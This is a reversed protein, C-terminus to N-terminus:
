WGWRVTWEVEWIQNRRVAARPKRARAALMKGEFAEVGIGGCARRRRPWGGHWLQPLSLSPSCRYGWAVWGSFRQM